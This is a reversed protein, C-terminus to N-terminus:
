DTAVVREFFRWTEDVVHNFDHAAGKAECEPWDSGGGITCFRTPYEGCDFETCGPRRLPRAECQNRKAWHVATESVSLLNDNKSFCHGGGDYPWRGSGLPAFWIMPKPNDNPGCKYPSSGGAQYLYAHYAVAAPIETCDLISAARGGDQSGFAFIRSADICYDQKVFKILDDVQHGDDNRWPKIDAGNPAMVIVGKREALDQFKEMFESATALRPRFVVLLPHPVDNEYSEPVHLCYGTGPECPVAGLVTHGCGSARPVVQDQEVTSPEPLKKPPAKQTQTAAAAPLKPVVVQPPPKENNSGSVLVAVIVGVAVVLAVVALIQNRRDNTPPAEPAIPLPVNPSVTPAEPLHPKDPLPDRTPPDLAALATGADPFRDRPDRATMRLILAILEPGIREAEPISFVYGTVLRDFQDSLRNSPLHDRGIVLELAMMGLSYIDSAPTLPRELIQEPSMYRPTGILEGTRTIAPHGDDTSRAIGFDLLKIRLPEDPSDFVRVNQPKLDRHILGMEHAETLALLLQRLITRVLHPPLRHVAKLYDSLDRGPVLEFVMYLEGAATEGSRLLQVTYPSRLQALLRVERRFRAATASDYGGSRDAKLVKIAVNVGSELDVAGYVIAFGGEGLISTIRYRAEFIDGEAPM